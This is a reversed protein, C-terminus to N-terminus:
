ENKARRQLRERKLTLRKSVKAYNRVSFQDTNMYTITKSQEDEESKTTYNRNIYKNLSIQKM